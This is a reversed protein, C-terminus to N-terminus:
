WSRWWTWGSPLYWFVLPVLCGLVVIALFLRKPDEALGRWVDAAQTWLGAAYVMLLPELPVRYRSLGALAAIAALHYLLIGGTVVGHGGRGRAVLALAGGLMVFMSWLAGWLIIGEDMIQPMHRWKGWRLHRTLLSHPTLMQAVRMPMRSVFEGPNDKIWEFGAATECADRKMPQKRGACRKRGQKAYRKFARASLQGNGYDFTIPPFDNNGLWMMQGMTRDSVIRTDMKKSIYVSYPAVTLVAATVMLLVQKWARGSSWRRWLLALAFIPLMYTAVGRFLVCIGGMIGVAIAGRLWGPAGEIGAERAKDLVLLLGLLLTGYLVESWLSMTFFILPPSLAYLWAAVRATRDAAQPGRDKWVRQTLRYVLVTCLGAAVVQLGKVTAGYGFLAKHVAMVAPYGPAWLWGASPVMGEGNAMKRAIRLYTCEDRACGWDGWIIMPLVRCVTGVLVATILSRDKLWGPRSM